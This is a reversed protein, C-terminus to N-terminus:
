LLVTFAVILICLAVLVAVVLMLIKCKLQRTCLTGEAGSGDVVREVQIETTLLHDSVEDDDNDDDDKVRHNQEPRGSSVAEPKISPKEEEPNVLILCKGENSTDKKHVVVTTKSDAHKVDPHVDTNAEQSGAPESKEPDKNKNLEGTCLLSRDKEPNEHFDSTETQHIEDAQSGCAASTECNKCNVDPEMVPIRHVRDQEVVHVEPPAFSVHIERVKIKETETRNSTKPDTVKTAGTTSVDGNEEEDGSSKSTGSRADWKEAEHKIKENEANEDTKVVKTDSVEGQRDCAASVAATEGDGREPDVDPKKETAETPGVNEPDKVEHQDKSLPKHKDKEQNNNNSTSNRDYHDANEAERKIKMGETEVNIFEVQPGSTEDQRKCGVSTQSFVPGAQIEEQVEDSLNGEQDDAQTETLTTDKASSDSKEHETRTEEHKFRASPDRVDDERDHGVSTEKDGPKVDQVVDPKTKMGQEHGNQATDTQEKEDTAVNSPRRHAPNMEDHVAPLPTRESGGLKPNLRADPITRINESLCVMEHNGVKTQDGTSSMNRNEEQDGTNRDTSTVRQKYGDYNETQHKVEQEEQKRDTAGDSSRQQSDCLNDQGELAASVMKERDESKFDHSVDPTTQVVVTLRSPECNEQHNKNLTVNQGHVDQHDMKKAQKDHVVSIKSFVRSTKMKNQGENSLDAEKHNVAMDNEFLDSKEKKDKLRAGEAGEDPVGGPPDNVDGQRERGPLAATKKSVGPQVDTDVDPKDVKTKTPEFQKQDDTGDDRGVDDRERKSKKPKPENEASENGSSTIRKSGKAQIDAANNLCHVFFFYM